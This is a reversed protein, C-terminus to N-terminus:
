SADRAEESSEDLSGEGQEAESINELWAILRSRIWRPRGGLRFDAAPLEGRAIMDRITAVRSVRIHAAVDKITLTLPEEESCGTRTRQM